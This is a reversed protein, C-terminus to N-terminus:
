RAAGKHIGRITATPKCPFHKTLALGVVEFANREKAAPHKELYVVVHQVLKPQSVKASNNNNFSQTADICDFTDAVGVIYGMCEAALLASGKGGMSATCLHLLQEGTVSAAAAEGVSLSTIALAAALLHNPKYTM